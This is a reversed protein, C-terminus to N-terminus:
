QKRKWNKLFKVCFKCGTFRKVTASVFQHLSGTVVFDM